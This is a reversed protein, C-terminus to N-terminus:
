AGEGRPVTVTKVFPIIRPIFRSVEVCSFGCKLLTLVADELGGKDVAMRTVSTGGMARGTAYLLYEAKRTV